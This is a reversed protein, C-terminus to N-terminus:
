GGGTGGMCSKHPQKIMSGHASDPDPTALAEGRWLIRAHATSGGSELLRALEICATRCLGILAVRHFAHWRIKAPRRAKVGEKRSHLM